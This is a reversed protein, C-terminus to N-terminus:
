TQDPNHRGIQQEALKTKSTLEEVILIDEKVEGTKGVIEEEM